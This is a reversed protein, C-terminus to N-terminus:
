HPVGGGAFIRLLCIASTAAIVAASISREVSEGSDVSGDLIMQRYGPTMHQGWAPNRQREEYVSIGESLWRPMRNHTKQLTVVHCFEHWLVAQWNSPKAGQAAPSNATILRGFCVGLYGAGGPLGFTRIAFDQQRPFIEVAVIEDLEVEYKECLVQRAERLLQLVQPGYISAERTEMRLELGDTTLTRFRDLQDKLTMLNYAVVNYGDRAQVDTALQWGEDDQGLRLLDQALQFQAPLYDSRLDLSRRQYGAGEAFRYKQSLKRGILHDVEYNTSWTALAANRLLQEGQFHGQLHAIVAHYAWAKPEYLNVQLVQELVGAAETYREADILQDVQLLLSPVHRPNLKLARSLAETARDPDSDRAALALLYAIQPDDSALKAATELNEVALTADQKDLALEAIAVYVAPEAPSRERVRDYVLELIKRSDEGQLAFFRGLIVQDQASSYRWPSGRVLSSIQELERDALDPRDVCRYVEHGLLRLGIRNGFRELAAEYAQRAEDYRGLTLLCRVLWQPWRENWVGRQVEQRSLELCAEYEGRFFLQEADVPTAGRAADAAWLPCLLLAIATIRLRM